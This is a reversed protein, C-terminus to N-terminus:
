RRQGNLARLYSEVFARYQAPYRDAEAKLLDLRLRDSERMLDAPLPAPAARAVDEGPRSERQPEFDRRNVSRQADLLRSLIRQQKQQVEDDAQGNRLAEEVEKMEHQAQDLRGLLKPQEPRTEDQQKGIQELAERLRRQEQAIREMEQRDGLPMQMQQSLRRAVSQTEQNLRSQDEGMKGVMQPVSNQNGQSPGPRPCMSAEAKRLELVAQNLATNGAEGAEEGRQRNGTDLDRGSESLNEIARGLAEHLEPSLFPTRQALQSLSDAVRSTGDALDTQRDARASPPESSTLNKEATRQISLLDQAARRVAALDVSQRQQQRNQAMQQLAQGARRLSQSARQGSQSAQSRQNQSAQQSAQAQEPAANQELEQAADDSQQQESQSDLQRALDRTDQALQRTEESAKTQREVLDSRQEDRQKADPSQPAVHEQNMADQRKAMDEARKALAELQEEQRLNKLLEITRQLNALMERNQERWEPLQQEMARRDLRELAEQMKRLAEKFEPSEIQKMLQALEQM